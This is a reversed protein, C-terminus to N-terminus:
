SPKATASPVATKAAEAAAPGGVLVSKANVSVATRVSTQAKGTLTSNLL